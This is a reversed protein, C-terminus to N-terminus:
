TMCSSSRRSIRQLNCAHVTLYTPSQMRACHSVATIAAVSQKNTATASVNYLLEAKKGGGEDKIRDVNEALYAQDITKGMPVHVHSLSLPPGGGGEVSRAGTPDPAMKGVGWTSHRGRAKAKEAAEYQSAILEHPKGSICALDFAHPTLHLRPIARSPSQM